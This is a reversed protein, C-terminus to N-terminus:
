PANVAKSMVPVVHEGETLNEADTVICDGKSVGSIIEFGSDFERGTKVPTKVTRGGSVCLVYENGNDDAQVASYPAVLVSSDNSTIIKAKATFGPKIDEKPNDVSVLVEVVTNQGSATQMQKAESSIEKVTGSYCSNKFGVGSIEAKQGTKIDAIQSENVSLRVQLASSDQITVAPKTSDIYYGTDPVSISAVTGSVPALLTQTKQQTMQEDSVYPSYTEYASDAASTATVVMLAQGKEVQQGTKVYIKKSISNAPAYVNGDSIEEVKGTCTISEVQSEPELKIVDIKLISNKIVNGATFIAAAAILTFAFLMVFRKM